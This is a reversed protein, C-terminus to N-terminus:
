RLSEALRAAIKGADTVAAAPVAVHADVGGTAVATGPKLGLKKAMEPLLGGARVGAPYIEGRIKETM